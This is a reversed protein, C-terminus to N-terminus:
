HAAPVGAAVTIGAAAAALRWKWTKFTHMSFTEKKTAKLDTSHVDRALVRGPYTRDTVNRHAGHSREIVDHVARPNRRAAESRSLACGPARVAADPAISAIMSICRMRLPGVVHRPTYPGRRGFQTPSRFMAAPPQM